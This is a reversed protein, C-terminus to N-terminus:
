FFKDRVQRVLTLFQEVFESRFLIKAGCEEGQKNQDFSQIENLRTENRCVASGWEHVNRRTSRIESDPDSQGNKGSFPAFLKAM